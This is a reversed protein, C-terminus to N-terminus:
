RVASAVERIFRDLLVLKAAGVPLFLDPVILEDVGAAQYARVVERLQEITGVNRPMPAPRELARAAAQESDAMVLLAVASRQIQRPDRGLARCHQDLVAMKHRLTAVDGWVNWEDAWRAAIRLTV